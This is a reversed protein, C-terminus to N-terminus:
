LQPRSVESWGRHVYRARLRKKVAKAAAESIGTAVIVTRNGMSTQQDIVERLRAGRVKRATLSFERATINLFVGAAYVM